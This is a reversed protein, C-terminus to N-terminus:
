QQKPNQQLYGAVRDELWLVVINLLTEYDKKALLSKQDRSLFYLDRKFNKNQQEPEKSFMIDFYKLNTNLSKSDSSLDSLIGAHHKRFHALGKIVVQDTQDYAEKNNYHAEITLYLKRFNRAKEIFTEPNIDDGEQFFSKSCMREAISLITPPKKKKGEESESGYVMNSIDERYIYILAAAVLTAALGIALSHESCWRKFRTWYGDEPKDEGDSSSSPPTATGKDSSHKVKAKRQDAAQYRIRVILGLVFPASLAIMIKFFIVLFFIPLPIALPISM